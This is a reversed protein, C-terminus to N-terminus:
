RTRRASHTVEVDYFMEALATGVQKALAEQATYLQSTSTPAQGPKQPLTVYLPFISAEGQPWIRDGTKSDIIKVQLTANPTFGGVEGSMSFSTLLGYIVVDAGVSQGIEEISLKEGFREKATGALAGRGDIMNKVVGKKLMTEQATDAITGRLRRSAIKSSPDDIFIVYTLTDDLTTVKRVKGPGHVAYAVPAVINCGTATLAAATAALVTILRIMNRPTKM